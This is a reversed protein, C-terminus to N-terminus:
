GGARHECRCQVSGCCVQVRRVGRLEAAAPRPAPNGHHVGHGPDGMKRLRFARTRDRSEHARYVGPGSATVLLDADHYVAGGCLGGSLAACEAIWARATHGGARASFPQQLVRLRRLPYVASAGPFLIARFGVHVRRCRRFIRACHGMGAGHGRRLGWFIRAAVAAGRGRGGGDDDAPHRM